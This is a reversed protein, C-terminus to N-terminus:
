GYNVFIWIRFGLDIYFLYWRKGGINRWWWLCVWVEVWFVYFGFLFRLININVNVSWFICFVFFYGVLSSGFGLSELCESWCVLWMWEWLYYLIFLFCVIVIICLFYSRGGLVFKVFLNDYSIFSILFCVKFFCEVLLFFLFVNVWFVYLWGFFGVCGFCGMGFLFVGGCNFGIVRFWVFFLVFDDSM